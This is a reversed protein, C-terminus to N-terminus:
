QTHHVPSQSALVVVCQLAVEPPAQHALTGVDASATVNFAEEQHHVTVIVAVAEQRENAAPANVHVSLVFQCVTFQVLAKLIEPEHVLVIVNHALVITHPVQVAVVVVQNVNLQEVEVIL